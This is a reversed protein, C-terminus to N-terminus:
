LKIINRLIFSIEDDNFEICYFREIDLVSDKICNFEHTFKGKLMDKYCCPPISGGSVLRSVTC